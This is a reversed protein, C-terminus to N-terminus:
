FINVIGFIDNFLQIILCFFYVLPGAEYSTETEEQLVTNNITEKTWMAYLTVDGSGKYEDGALYIKSSSMNGDTWGMFTYGTKVPVSAPIIISSGKAQTQSAPENSGENANFSVTYTSTSPIISKIRMAPVIGHSTLDATCYFNSGGCSTVAFASRSNYPTRLWWWSSGSDYVHNGQCNAYDTDIMQREIDCAAFDTDFGYKWNTVEDFSLLFIKDCVIPGDYESDYVSKSELTSFLINSQQSANFATNLFDDNLWERISSKAYNTEYYNYGADSYYESACEYVYNSYPQADVIMNSMVLGSQQDLIRWELTEFRFWYVNGAFYGNDYQATYESGGFDEFTAAPRNEDFVVARYKTGNYTVDKYRMYDSSTMSGFNNNGSFYDYSTWSGKISNLASVTNKDTVLSQPYSGFSITNDSASAKINLATINGSIVIGAVLILSLIASIYKKM